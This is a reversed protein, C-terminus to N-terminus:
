HNIIKSHPNDKYIQNLTNQIKQIFDNDHLLGFHNILAKFEECNIKHNKFAFDRTLYIFYQALRKRSMEKGKTFFEHGQLSKLAEDISNSYIERM